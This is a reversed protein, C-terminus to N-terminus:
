INKMMLDWTPLSTKLIENKLLKVFLLQPNNPDAPVDTSFEGVQYEVGNINYRFAVALVEDANLSANLSIYGLRPNLTFERETLKRAYTLKSYNDTGGTSQFFTNISNSNTARADSPLLQLINNSQQPFAPDQFGAPYISGGGQFLTTNYPQNEGLDMLGLVDRSDVTSNSRNTIWVEVKTINAPSTIIPINQLSKNYIDRFYQALFYHKNAEYNDATIRFENQQSGNSITIERPQSKQQSFISTVNLRGFQMQTKLGFLAQSGSILTSNLPLSVNGAEIRQIIEDPKGTYDLKMQNEFDFQAETNYNTTIRLKDGIQGVVNMQIRQDFDFNGQRRQRENFLPNENKNVRGALTIEATGQPRIDILSGGFIKEFSKNKITVAPIFGPEQSQKIPADSLQKWYDKKLKENEYKQYEGISLYQPARYARDGIKEQIIYRKTVPDFEVSRKINSPNPLYLGPKPRLDLIRSDKFPYKVQLSDALSTNTQAFANGSIFL